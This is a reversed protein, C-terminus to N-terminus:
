MEDGFLTQTPFSNNFIEGKKLDSSFKDTENGWVDWGDSKMRAFLEIRPLEGCLEIIKQRIIDPKKSHREIPMDIIQSISASVRKPNGKTALLCIESNSRTWRGMGFFWSNSKKNKKVWNFACTKYNFGWAKIVDLGKQLQPFVVWIFLVCDTDAIEKIPLKKIDDFKMTEYHAEATSRTWNINLKNNYEWAPDAYIISYKKGECMKLLEKRENEM